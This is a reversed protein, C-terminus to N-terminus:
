NVCGVKGKELEPDSSLKLTWQLLTGCFPNAYVQKRIRGDSFFIVEGSGSSIRVQSGPLETVLQCITWLGNGREAQKTSTRGHEIGGAIVDADTFEPPCFKRVVDFFSRKPLTTPIGVGQDYVVFQLIEADPDYAGAAWWQGVTKVASLEADDPYAHSKVNYIAEVLAAYTAERAPAIGAAHKLNEILRDAMSGDVLDGHVFPVFKLRTQLPGCPVGTRGKASVLTYFGLMDLLARVDASWGQDDIEPRFDALICLRHYEATVVLAADLAIQKVKSLDVVLRKFKGRLSSHETFVRRRYEYVLALLGNRNQSVSLQSPAALITARERQGSPYHVYDLRTNVSPLGASKVALSRITERGLQIRAARAASPPAVVSPPRTTKAASRRFHRRLKRGRGGRRAECVHKARL